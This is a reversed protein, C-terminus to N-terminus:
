DAEVGDAGAIEELDFDGEVNLDQISGLGQDTPARTFM